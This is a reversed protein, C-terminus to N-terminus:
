KTLREVNEVLLFKQKDVCLTLLNEIGVVQINLTKDSPLGQRIQNSYNEREQLFREFMAYAVMDNKHYHELLSNSNKLYQYRFYFRTDDNKHIALARSIAYHWSEGKVFEQEIGANEFRVGLATEYDFGTVLNVKNAYNIIGGDIYPNKVAAPNKKKKGNVEIFYQDYKNLDTRKTVSSFAAFQASGEYAKLYDVVERNSVETYGEKSSVTEQIRQTLTMTCLYLM